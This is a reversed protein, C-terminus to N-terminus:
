DLWGFKVTGSHENDTPQVPKGYGREIIMNAATLQDREKEGREMIRVLVALADPTKDRCAQILDLEESTRAPRGGPNGSQGKAFAKGRPKAKAAKGSNEATGM